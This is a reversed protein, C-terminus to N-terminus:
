NQPIKSASFYLLFLVLLFCAVRIVIEGIGLDDFGNLPASFIDPFPSDCCYSIGVVYPLLISYDDRFLCLVVELIPLFDPVFRDKLFNVVNIDSDRGAEVRRCYNIM